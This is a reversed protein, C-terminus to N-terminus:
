KDVGHHSIPASWICRTTSCHTVAIADFTSLHGSEGRRAPRSFAGVRRPDPGNMNAPIPSHSPEPAPLPHPETVDAASRIRRGPSAGQEVEGIRVMGNVKGGEELKIRRAQIQGEVVCTAQLELRSEAVISGTVRGGVVADQTTIDGDFFGGRALSVNGSIRRQSGFNYAVRADTFGYGGVPIVVGRSVEFPLELLEFEPWPERALMDGYGLRASNPDAADPIASDFSVQQVHALAVQADAVVQFPLRLSAEVRLEKTTAMAKGTENGSGRLTDLLM